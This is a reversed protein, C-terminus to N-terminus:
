SDDKTPEPPKPDSPNANQVLLSSLAELSQRVQAILDLNSDLFDNVAGASKSHMQSHWQLLDNYIDVSGSGLKGQLALSYKNQIKGIRYLLVGASFFLLVLLLTTAFLILSQRPLKRFETFTGKITKVLGRSDKDRHLVEKTNLLSPDKTLSKMLSFKPTITIPPSDRGSEAEGSESSDIIDPEEIDPEIIVPSATRAKEWVTRMFVLTSDRSMLSGFVHKDESTSVGVANPIIRATKEKTIDEVTLIPILLKTVYGFVNSYFAFYNKTIYLHGQLLIDGILACSYHNLVKEDEEVNPFHRLFKKQRAKSTIHVKPEKVAKPSPPETPQAQATMIPTSTSLHKLSAKDCKTFVSHSPSSHIPSLSCGPNLTTQLSEPSLSTGATSCLVEQPTSPASRAGASGFNGSSRSKRLLKNKVSVLKPEKSVGVKQSDKNEFGQVFCFMVSEAM